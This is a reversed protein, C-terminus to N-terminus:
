AKAVFVVKGEGDELPNSGGVMGNWKEGSRCDGNDDFNESFRPPDGGGGGQEESELAVANVNVDIGVGTQYIRIGAAAPVPVGDVEEVLHL